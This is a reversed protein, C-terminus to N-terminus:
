DIFTSLLTQYSSNNNFIFFLPLTGIQTTHNFTNSVMDAPVNEFYKRMREWDEMEPRRISPKLHAQAEHLETETIGVDNCSDPLGQYALRQNREMVQQDYEMESRISFMPHVQLPPTNDCLSWSESSNATM